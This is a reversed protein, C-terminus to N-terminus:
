LAMLRVTTVALSQGSVNKDGLTGFLLLAEITISLFIQLKSSWLASKLTLELPRNDSELYSDDRLCFIDWSEAFGHMAVGVKQERADEMNLYRLRSDPSHSATTRQPHMYYHSPSAYHPHVSNYCFLTHSVLLSGLLALALAGSLERIDRIIRRTNGTIGAPLRTASAIFSVLMAILSITIRIPHTDFPSQPKGQYKLNLLVLVLPIAYKFDISQTEEQNRRRTEYALRRGSDTLHSPLREEDSM